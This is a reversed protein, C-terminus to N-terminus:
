PRFPRHSPHSGAVGTQESQKREPLTAGDALTYIMRKADWRIDLERIKMLIQDLRAPSTDTLYRGIGARQFEAHYVSSLMRLAQMILLVRGDRHRPPDSQDQWPSSRLVSEAAEIPRTTPALPSQRIRGNEHLYPLLQSSPHEPLGALMYGSTGLFPIDDQLLVPFRPIRRRDEVPQPEPGGLAPMPLYGPDKPLEFLTLLVCFMNDRNELGVVRLYEEVAALAKQKGLPQLVNVARIVTVPNYTQGDNPSSAAALTRLIGRLVAEEFLSSDPPVGLNLGGFTRVVKGAEDIDIQGLTAFTLHGSTGYRWIERAMIPLDRETVVDDPRDLLATVQERSMGVKVRAMATAFAQRNRLHSRTPQSTPPPLSRQQSCSAPLLCIAIAAVATRIRM